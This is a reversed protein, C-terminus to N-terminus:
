GLREVPVELVGTREPLADPVHLQWGSHNPNEADGEYIQIAGSAFVDVTRGDVLTVSICGHDESVRWNLMDSGQTQAEDAAAQLERRAARLKATWHAPGMNARRTQHALARVKAARDLLHKETASRDTWVDSQMPYGCSRVLEILPELGEHLEEEDVYGPM